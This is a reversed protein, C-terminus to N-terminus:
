PSQPLSLLQSPAGREEGGTPLRLLPSRRPRAPSSRPSALRARQATAVAPKLSETAGDGQGPRGSSSFHLQEAALKFGDFQLGPCGSTLSFSTPCPCFMPASVIVKVPALIMAATFSLPAGSRLKLVYLFSAPPLAAVASRTSRMSRSCCCCTPASLILDLRLLIESSPRVIDM